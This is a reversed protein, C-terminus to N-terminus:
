SKRVKEEDREKLVPNLQTEKGRKTVTEVTM